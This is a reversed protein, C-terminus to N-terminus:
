LSSVYEEVSERISENKPYYEIDSITRGESNEKWDFCGVVTIMEGDADEVTCTFARTGFRADRTLRPNWNLDDWWDKM